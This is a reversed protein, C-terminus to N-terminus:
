ETAFRSISDRRLNRVARDIHEAEINPNIRKLARSLVAPLVCEKKSSRETGDNLDDRKDPSADCVIVDYEFPKDRLKQLIAQEIDNESIFSRM